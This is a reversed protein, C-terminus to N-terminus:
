SRAGPIRFRRNVMNVALSIVWSLLLYIGMALLVGELSRGTQNAVTGYVNFLDPYGIAIGLSSNKALSIYQNGLAPMVIRFVQPLIVDGLQHRRSLGLSDAAEWQGRPLAEIAGRIIEGIYAATNVTLALMLAVYEPSVPLGGSARFRGAQPLDLQLRLGLGFALGLLAVGVAALLGRRARYRRPLLMLLAVLGALALLAAFTGDGTVVPAPLWIGQRSLIAGLAAPADRLLPLQLVVGVYWFVLQILLPTNRVFETLGFALKRILWNTSLRAVGLAVGLLTALAIAVLSVKLTNYLGVGLARWNSMESAFAVLGERTPTLGESIEFGARQSLFAFSFSVGRAAFGARVAMALLVLLGAAIGLVAIQVLARRLRRWRLSPSAPVAPMPREPEETVARGSPWM